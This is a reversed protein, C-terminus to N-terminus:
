SVPTSQQISAIEGAMVYHGSGSQKARYMASDAASMIEDSSNAGGCVAIGISMRVSIETGEIMMPQAAIAITKNAISQVMGTIDGAASDLDTVILVFEDGGVRALTDGQRIGEALRGAIIRLAEDGTEHGFTDNIPKFDDLDMFMLAVRTDNRKARALAQALREILLRRNPLGTLSDHHAIRLLEDQSSLLKTLLRNFAATLHGIEDDHVIKLPMLPAEGLTMQDAQRAADFLPKLGWRAILLVFLSMLGIALLSGKLVYSKARDILAFADETPIRAVLFWGTSPISVIASLEEVGKANITIGTGRYGAMARDHLRNVGDAPTPKLTFSPDTAAVFLRDKPSILLFGGSKGIASNQLTDLFGPESLAVGGVLIGRVTGAADKIASAIPLIPRKSSPGTIPQAIAVKGDRVDKFDPHNSFDTGIRGPIIPYDTIVVGALNLVVIGGNFLPLLEHRTQIWVQLQTTDTLLDPPLSAAMHEIFAKRQEIKADIDHAVYNAIALQQTSVILELDKRLFETLLVYRVATGVLVLAIGALILRSVLSKSLRRINM